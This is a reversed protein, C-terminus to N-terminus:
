LDIFDFIGSLDIDPLELWSFDMNFGVSPVSDTLSSLMDSHMSVYDCSEGISRHYADFDSQTNFLGHSWCCFDLPVDQRKNSAKVEDVTYYRKKGYHQLLDDGVSKALARKDDPSIACTPM